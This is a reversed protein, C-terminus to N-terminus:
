SHSTWSKPHRLTLTFLDSFDHASAAQYAAFTLSWARVGMQGMSSMCVQRSGSSIMNPSFALARFWVEGAFRTLEVSKIALMARNRKRAAKHAFGGPV